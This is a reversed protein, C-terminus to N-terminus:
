SDNIRSDYNEIRITSTKLILNLLFPHLNVSGVGQQLKKKLKTHNM